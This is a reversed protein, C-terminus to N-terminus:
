VGSGPGQVPTREAALLRFPWSQCVKSPWSASAPASISGLFLSVSLLSICLAGVPWDGGVQGALLKYPELYSCPSRLMFMQQWNALFLARLSPGMGDWAPLHGALYRWHQTHVRDGSVPPNEQHSSQNAHGCPCPLVQLNKCRGPCASRPALGQGPRLQQLGGAQWRRPAEQAGPSPLLRKLPWPRTTSAAVQLM